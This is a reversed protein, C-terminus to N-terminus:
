KAKVEMSILNDQIIFKNELFKEAVWINTRTHNTIQSTKIKGGLLGLWPIINDALHLDCAANSSIETVLKRAAASGVSEASKSVEGRFDAGLVVRKNMHAYLNIESSISNTQVYEARIDIPCNLREELLEKAAKAQRQAVERKLLDASAISIGSVRVLEGQKTLDIPKPYKIPEINVSVEGGGKPYYGRILIRLDAKLGSKALIPFICNPYYDIPVAGLGCTGGKINLSLGESKLAAVLLLPQLLLGISGATGIDIDLHQKPIRDKQPIFSIEKSNLELGKTEADFLKALTKLTHLHQPKLGSKPRRARINNVKIARGTICSLGVATRLIQGGGELYDGDIKLLDLATKSM